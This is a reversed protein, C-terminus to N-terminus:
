PLAYGYDSIIKQGQESRVFALFEIAVPHDQLLVAQQEIPSYSSRPPLWFSGDAAQGPKHIQSYAVFGLEANGTKVFQYTQGINEGRVMRGQLSQWADQQQLVQQAARGYPALKPNAMALYRFRDIQQLIEGQDDVIDTDPSWLVLTGIAYTFRSGPQIAGEQELLGPRKSDAAFFAHFPAGNHIQAYHKGTSGFVPVVKHESRQHYLHVLDRFADSFNSAVAIRIEEARVPIAAALGLLLVLLSRMIHQM